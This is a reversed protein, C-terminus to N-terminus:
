KIINLTVSCHKCLFTAPVHEQKILNPSWKRNEFKTYNRVQIYSDIAWTLSCRIFKASKQILAKNELATPLHGGFITMKVNKATAPLCRMKEIIRYRTGPYRSVPVMM